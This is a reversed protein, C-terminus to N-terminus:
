SSAVETRCLDLRLLRPVCLPRSARTADTPTVEPSRSEPTPVTTQALSVAVHRRTTTQHPAPLLMLSTSVSHISDRLSLSPLHDLSVFMPVVPRMALATLTPRPCRGRIPLSPQRGDLVAQVDVVAVNVLSVQEKM